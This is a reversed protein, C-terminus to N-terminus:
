SQQLAVFRRKEDGCVVAFRVCNACRAASIGVQVIHCFARQERRSKGYGPARYSVSGDGAPRRSLHPQLPARLGDHTEASGRPRDLFICLCTHLLPSCCRTLIIIFLFLYMGMVCGSNLFKLSFAASEISSESGDASYGLDVQPDTTSSTYSAQHPSQVGRPYFLPGLPFM